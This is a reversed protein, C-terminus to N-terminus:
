GLAPPRRGAYFCCEVTRSLHEDRARLETLARNLDLLWEAQATAVSVSRTSPKTFSLRQTSRRVGIRAAFITTRSGASSTM